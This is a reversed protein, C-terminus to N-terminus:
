VAHREVLVSSTEARAAAYAAQVQERTRLDRGIACSDNGRGPRVVVPLSLETAAAWADEADAVARGEPVPGGAAHLLTRALLHDRAIGEAIAGTADTQGDWARHQHVGHGLQYLGPVGLPTVPVGRRRAAELLAATGAPLANRLLLERLRTLES